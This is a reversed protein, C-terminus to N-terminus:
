WKGKASSVKAKSGHPTEKHTHKSRCSKSIIQQLLSPCVKGFNTSNLVHTSPWGNQTLIDDAALCQFFIGIFHHFSCCSNGVKFPLDFCPLTFLTILSNTLLRDM